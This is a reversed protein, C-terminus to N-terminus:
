FLNITLGFPLKKRKLKDLDSDYVPNLIDM